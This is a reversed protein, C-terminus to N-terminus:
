AEEGAGGGRGSGGSSAAPQLAGDVYHEARKIVPLLDGRGILFQPHKFEWWGAPRVATESTDSRLKRFGYFNLQRVFSRFNRHKFFMPLQCLNLPFRAVPTLLGPNSGSSLM